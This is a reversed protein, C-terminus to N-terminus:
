ASYLEELVRKAEDYSEAEFIVRGNNRNYGVYNENKIKVDYKFIDTPAPNRMPPRQKTLADARANLFWTGYNWRQPGTMIDVEQFFNLSRLCLEM